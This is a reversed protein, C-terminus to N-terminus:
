EETDVLDDEDYLEVEIVLEDEEWAEDLLEEPDIDDDLGAEHMEVEDDLWAEMDVREAEDRRIRDVHDSLHKKDVRRAM